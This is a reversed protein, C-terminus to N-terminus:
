PVPKPVDRIRVVEPPGYREIVAAKMTEGAQDM